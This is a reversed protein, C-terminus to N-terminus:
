EFFRDIWYPYSIFILTVISGFALILGYNRSIWTDCVIKSEKNKFYDYWLYSLTILSLAVFIWYYPALLQLFSLSSVSIGFLLFLLPALCCSSALIASIISGVILAYLKKKPKQELSCEYGKVLTIITTKGVKKQTYYIGMKNAFRKVNEISSLTNLEVDLFDDEELSEWAEKTLIVPKPCDLDKCDLRL